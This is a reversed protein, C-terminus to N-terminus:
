SSPIAIGLIRAIEKIEGADKIQAVGNFLILELQDPCGQGSMFTVLTVADLNVWEVCDNKTTIRFLHM